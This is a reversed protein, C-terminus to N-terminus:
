GADNKAERKKQERLKAASSIRSRQEESRVKGSVKAKWAASKPKGKLAAFGGLHRGEAYAKRLSEGRKDRTEQSVKRGRMKALKEPAAKKGINKERLLGKTHESVRRGLNSEAIPRANYGYERDASCLRNIWAQERTLLWFKEAVEEVVDFVFAAEGYKKWSAQLHPAHHTGANLHHRHIRKRSAFDVASGVYVKGTIQNSITYIAGV